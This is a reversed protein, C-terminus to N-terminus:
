PLCNQLWKEAVLRQGEPLLHLGGADYLPSNALGLRINAWLAKTFVLKHGRKTVDRGMRWVLKNYSVAQEETM